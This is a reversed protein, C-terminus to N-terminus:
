SQLPRFHANYTPGDGAMLAQQARSRADDRSVAGQASSLEAAGGHVKEGLNVPLASGTTLYVGHSEAFCIL